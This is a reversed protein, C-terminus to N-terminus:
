KQASTQVLPGRSRLDQQTQRDLRGLIYMSYPANICSTAPSRPNQSQRYILLEFIPFLKNTSDIASQQQTVYRRLQNM